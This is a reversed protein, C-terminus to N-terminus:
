QHNSSTQHCEEIVEGAKIDGITFVGLGSIPSSKVLLDKNM